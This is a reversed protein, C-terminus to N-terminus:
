FTADLLGGTFNTPPADEDHGSNTFKPVPRLAVYLAMLVSDFLDPSFGLRKKVHDKSEVKLVKDTVDFKHLMAEQQLQKLFPCGRFHKIIGTEIGRAYLYIMQSRLNDFTLASDDQSELRVDPDPKAGSMYAQVTFGDRALDHQLGVGLGVVDLGVQNLGYQNSEADAELWDAQDPLEMAESKDKVIALDALTTGYLLARTARDGNAAVAVDYGASRASTADLADVVSEAWRRSKFLSTSEDAYDWNNYLYRQTWWDPNTKLSDIDRKSQWSDNIDFEIVRVNPPLTGAKWPDYYKVKLYGDTPNMTLISLSPQGNENRRGRRSTAQVFMSEVLEDPEDIHNGTANIGKIKKGDRDKTIDAEFFPIVSGNPFQMFHDARNYTFDVGDVLGMKDAMELYSPVVTRKATTINQRFVPWYSKPFTDVLSIVIHAAIDTKGSGVTGILVLTDVVPDNVADVALLQKPKLYLV